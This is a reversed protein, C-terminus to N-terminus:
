RLDGILREVTSKAQTTDTDIQSLLLRLQSDLMDTLEIVGVSREYRKLQKEAQKIGCLAAQRTIGFNEAIEALSLDDDYYSRILERRHETLLAGYADCLRSISLDKVMFLATFYIYKVANNYFM